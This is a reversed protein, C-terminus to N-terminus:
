DSDDTCRILVSKKLLQVWFFEPIRYIQNGLRCMCGLM